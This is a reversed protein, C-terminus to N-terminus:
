PGVRWPLALRLIAGHGISLTTYDDRSGSPAVEVVEVGHEAVVVRRLDHGESGGLNGTDFATRVRGREGPRQIGVADEDHRLLLQRVQDGALMDVFDDEGVRIERMYVHHV